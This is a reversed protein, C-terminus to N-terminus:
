GQSRRRNDNFLILFVKGTSDYKNGEDNDLQM